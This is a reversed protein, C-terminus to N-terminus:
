IEEEIKTSKRGGKGKEKGPVVPALKPPPAGNENPEDDKAGDEDDNDLTVEAAAQVSVPPKEEDDLWGDASGGNKRVYAARAVAIEDLTAKRAANRGVLDKEQDYDDFVTRADIIELGKPGLRHITHEAYLKM